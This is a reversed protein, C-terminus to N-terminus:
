KIVFKAKSHGDKTKTVQLMAPFIDKLDEVHSIVGILRGSEQLQILAQIAKQLSEEDLSGFGEDIFMTNISISGQFNQIVDSMGLALCLSAIFKEGGSLTKVDRTQGTYGDFVDISLGSQKGRAEMRDSRMLYFQGNVLEQFRENAAEIINDLYDIQLYREFSIKLENQGRLVNYLDTIIGADEEKEKVTKSLTTIDKVLKHAAEFQRKSLNWKELATEYRNKLVFLKNEITSVDMTSKGALSKELEAVQETLTYLKQKFAEITQSLHEREQDTLKAEEYTVEETFGAESLKKQYVEKTETEKKELEKLQQEKNSLSTAVTQKKEKAADLKKQTTEWAAMREDLTEKQQKIKDKLVKIEQLDEPINQLKTTFRAEMTTFKTQNKQYTEEMKEIKENLQEDRKELKELQENNKRLLDSLAKADTYAKRVRHGQEVIDNMQQPLQEDNVQINEEEMEELKEKSKSKLVVLQNSITDYVKKAQDTEKRKEELVEKTIGDNTSVAVQPHHTSGCVPCAEDTELNDAIIVAQANLWQKEYQKYQHFTRDYLAKKDQEKNEVDTKETLLKHYTNLLTYHKKVKELEYQLEYEQKAGTEQQKMEKKLSLIALQNNKREKKDHELHSAENKLKQEDDMIQKKMQVSEEVIPLFERYKQLDIKLKDRTSEEKKEKEYTEQAKALASNAQELLSKEKEVDNKITNLEQKATDFQIEYPKIQHAKNAQELKNEKTQITQKEEKMQNLAEKKNTLEEFRENLALGQHYKEHMENHAKFAENYQQNDIEIQKKFYIIDKQLANLVQMPNNFEQELVQFVESGDFPNIVNHIDHITQQLMLKQQEYEKILKDQREKLYGSIDKYKVTNFLKRLIEEKNETDSTLLKRFEGQPLMVIQKFQDETLGILQEIKENIETVMQRDVCPIEETGIQEYLEYKDGTKTKNGSKVHGIQRLVRYFRGKIEFVFEVKTHVDDNAFHSRLMMINERDTGSASGYLAFCIADFITTKGAGTAGSIVFINLGDLEKFNITETDKYPGFATMTLKVPRM